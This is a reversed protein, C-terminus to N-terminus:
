PLPEGAHFAAVRVRHFPVEGFEQDVAFAPQDFAILRRGLRVLQQRINFRQQTALQQYQRQYLRDAHLALRQGCPRPTPGSLAYFYNLTDYPRFRKRHGWDLGSPGETQPGLAGPEGAGYRSVRRIGICAMSIGFGHGTNAGM